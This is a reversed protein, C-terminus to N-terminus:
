KGEKHDLFLTKTDLMEIKNKDLDHNQKYKIIALKAKFDEEAAKNNDQASKITTELERARNLYDLREQGSVDRSLELVREQQQRAKDIEELYVKRRDVNDNVLALFEEKYTETIYQIYGSFFNLTEKYATERFEIDRIAIAKKSETETRKTIEIQEIRKRKETESLEVRRTEQLEQQITTEKKAEAEARKTAEEQEVRKTKEIEGFEVRRTEETEVIQKRKTQEIESNKSAEKKIEALNLEKEHELKAKYRETKNKIQVKREKSERDKQNEKAEHRQEDVQQKYEWQAHENEKNALSIAMDKMEKEHEHQKRQMKEEHERKKNAGTLFDFIGM